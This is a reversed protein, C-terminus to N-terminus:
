FNKFNIRYLYGLKDDIDIYNRSLAELDELYQDIFELSADIKDSLTDLEDSEKENQDSLQGLRKYIDDFDKAHAKIDQLFNELIKKDKQVIEVLNELSYGISRYSADKNVLEELKKSWTSPRFIHLDDLYKEVHSILERHDDFMKVENYKKFSVIKM